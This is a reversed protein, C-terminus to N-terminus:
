PPTQPPPGTPPQPPQVPIVPPQYPTTPPPSPGRVGGPKGVAQRRKMWLFLLVAVVAIVVLAIIITNLTAGSQYSYATLSMHSTVVDQTNYTEHKVWYGVSEAYYLKTYTTPTATPTPTRVVFVHFTGAPVTVDTEAEVKATYTLTSTAIRVSGIFTETYSQKSWEKGATLPFEAQTMPPDYTDTRSGFLTPTISKAIGLDAERIWYDSTISLAGVTLTQTLHWTDYTGAILAVPEKAVVSVRVPNSDQIKFQWYDGQTWRPANAAARATPVQLVVTATLLLAVLAATGRLLRASHM